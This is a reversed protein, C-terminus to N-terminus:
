GRKEVSAEYSLTRGGDCELEGSVDVDISETGFTRVKVAPQDSMTCKTGDALEATLPLVSYEPPESGPRKSLTMSFRTDEGRAKVVVAVGTGSLVVFDGGLEGTMAGSYSLKWRRVKDDEDGEGEVGAPAPRSEAEAAAAGAAAGATAATENSGAGCGLALLFILPFHDIRM